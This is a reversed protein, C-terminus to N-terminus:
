IVFVFEYPHFIVFIFEFRGMCSGCVCIEVLADGLDASLSLSLSLSLAVITLNFKILWRTPKIEHWIQKYKLM